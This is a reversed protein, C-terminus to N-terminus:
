LIEAKGMNLVNASLLNLIFDGFFILKEDHLFIPFLLIQKNGTNKLLTKRLTLITRNLTLVM